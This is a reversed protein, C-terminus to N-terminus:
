AFHEGPLEPNPELIGVDRGHPTADLKHTPRSVDLRTANLQSNFSVTVVKPLQNGLAPVNEGGVELHLWVFVVVVLPGQVVEVTHKHTLTEYVAV